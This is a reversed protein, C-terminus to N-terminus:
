LKVPQAESLHYIREKEVELSDEIYNLIERVKNIHDKKLNLAIKQSTLISSTSKHKLFYLVLFRVGSVFEELSLGNFSKLKIISELEPSKETLTCLKLLTGKSM